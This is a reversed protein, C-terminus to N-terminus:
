VAAEDLTAPVYRSRPHAPVLLAAGGCIILFGASMLFSITFGTVTPLGNHVNAALFTATLQGGLAGGVTRMVTNM